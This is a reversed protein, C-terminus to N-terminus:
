LYLSRRPALGIQMSGNDRVRQRLSLVKDGANLWPEEGDWQPGWLAWAASQPERSKGWVWTLVGPLALGHVCGEGRASIPVLWTELRRLPLLFPAPLALIWEGSRNAVSNPPSREERCYLLEPPDGLGGPVRGGSRTRHM